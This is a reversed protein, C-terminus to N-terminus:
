CCFRVGHETSWLVAKWKLDMRVKGVDAWGSSAPSNKVPNHSMLFISIIIFLYILSGSKSIVELYNDSVKCKWDEEALPWWHERWKRDTESSIKHKKQLSKPNKKVSIPTEFHVSQVISKWFLVNMNIIKVFAYPLVKWRKRCSSCGFSEVVATKPVSFDPRQLSNAM